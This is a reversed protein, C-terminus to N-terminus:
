ALERFLLRVSPVHEINLLDDLLAKARPAPLERTALAIFKDQLAASLALPEGLPPPTAVFEDLTSGDCLQVEVRAPRAVPYPPTLTADASVRVRAALELAEPLLPRQQALPDVDHQGRVILLGLNYPISFMGALQNKPSPDALTAALPYTAVRIEAIDSPAIPHRGLLRSMAAIASHAHACAPYPKFYNELVEWRTGLADDLLAATSADSALPLLFEDVSSRPGSLGARVAYAATIASQAALGPLLHHITAGEVTARRWSFQTMMASCDVLEALQSGNLHLLRGVALAAGITPWNGHPHLQRRMPFVARGLRVAVEYGLILASILERGSSDLEESAALVAPVIHIAPHGMSQRHGEDFQLVTTLAGNVLAATAAQTKNSEGFATAEGSASTILSSRFRSIEPARAAGIMIGVTDLLIYKAREVAPFPIDTLRTQGVFAAFRDAVTTTPREVAHLSM